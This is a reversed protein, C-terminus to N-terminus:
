LLALASETAVRVGGINTTIKTSFDSQKAVGSDSLESRLEGCIWLLSKSPPEGGANYHNDIEIKKLEMKLRSLHEWMRKPRIMPDQEFNHAGEGAFDTRIGIVRCKIGERDESLVQIAQELWRRSANGSFFLHKEDDDSHVPANSTCIVTKDHRSNLAVSIMRRFVANISKIFKSVRDRYENLQDGVYGSKQGTSDVIDYWLLYEFDRRKDIRGYTEAKNLARTAVDEMRPFRNELYGVAFRTAEASDPMVDEDATLKKIREALERDATRPQDYRDMAIVYDRVKSCVRKYATESGMISAVALEISFIGYAIAKVEAALSALYDSFANQVDSTDQSRIPEWFGAWMKAEIQIDTRDNNQFYEVGKDVGKFTEGSRFGLYKLRASHMAIYGEGNVIKKHLEEAQEPPIVGNTAFEETIEPILTRGCWRIALRLEAAIAGVADKTSPCTVALMFENVTMVQGSPTRPDLVKGLLSGLLNAQNSAEM